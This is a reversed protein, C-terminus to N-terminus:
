KMNLVRLMHDVLWSTHILFHIYGLQVCLGFWTCVISLPINQEANLNTQCCESSLQCYLEAQQSRTVSM